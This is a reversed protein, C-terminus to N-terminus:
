THTYAYISICKSKKTHTPAIYDYNSCFTTLGLENNVISWIPNVENKAEGQDSVGVVWNVGM